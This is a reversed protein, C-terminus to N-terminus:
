RVRRKIKLSQGTKKKKLCLRVLYGLRYRVKHGLSTDLEPDEQKLRPNCPQGVM